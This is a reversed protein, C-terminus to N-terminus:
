ATTSRPCWKLPLQRELCSWIRLNKLETYINRGIIIPLTDETKKGHYIYMLRTTQYFVFV